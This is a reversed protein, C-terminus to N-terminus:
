GPASAQDTPTFATRRLLSRLQNREEATLAQLSIDEAERVTESARKYLRKGSATARIIKSRRDGPDNLREVLGRRELGDVLAVIQSPVLCLFDALERQSPADATCALALVSYSRVKLDLPGLMANARATGISITRAALFETEKALDSALLRDTSGPVLPARFREISEMIAGTM